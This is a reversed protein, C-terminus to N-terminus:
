TPLDGVQMVEEVRGKEGAEAHGGAELECIVAGLGTLALLGAVQTSVARLQLRSQCRAATLQLRVLADVVSLDAASDVDCVVTQRTGHALLARVQECLRALEAPGLPGHLTVVLSHPSTTVHAPTPVDGAGQGHEVDVM